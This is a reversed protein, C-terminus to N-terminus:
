VEDLIRSAFRRYNDGLEAASPSEWVRRELECVETDMGFHEAYERRRRRGPFYREAAAFWTVYGRYLATTLLEARAWYDVVTALQRATDDRDQRFATACWQALDSPFEGVAGRAATGAGEDDALLVGYAFEAVRALASREGGGWGPHDRLGTLLADFGARTLHDAHRPADAPVTDQDWVCVLGVEDDDGFGSLLAGHAYAFALRGCDEAAPVVDAALDLVPEPLSM